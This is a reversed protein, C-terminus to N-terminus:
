ARGGVVAAEPKAASTEGDDFVAVGLYRWVPDYDLVIVPGTGDPHNLWYDDLAHWVGTCVRGREAVLVATASAASDAPLPTDPGAVLVASRGLRLRASTLAAEVTAGLEEPAVATFHWVQTGSDAGASGGARDADNRAADISDVVVAVAASCTPVAARDPVDWPITHQDLALVLARRGGCDALYDGALRLATFPSTSGQDSISFVMPGGPVADAIFCGVFDRTDIDPTAYALIVLDVEGLLPGLEGLVEAAMFKYSALRDLDLLDPRYVAGYLATLDGLTRDLAERGATQATLDGRTFERSLTAALRVPLAGREEFSRAGLRTPRILHM